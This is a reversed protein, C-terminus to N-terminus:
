GQPPPFPMKRFLDDRGRLIYRMRTIINKTKAREYRCILPNAKLGMRAVVVALRFGLNLPEDLCHDFISDGVDLSEASAGRVETLKVQECYVLFQRDADAHSSTHRVARDPRPAPLKSSEFVRFSIKRQYEFHVLGIGFDLGVIQQRGGM